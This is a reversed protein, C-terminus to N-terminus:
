DDSERRCSKLEDWESGGVFIIDNNKSRKSFENLAENETERQLVFVLVDSAGRLMELGVPTELYRFKKLQKIKRIAKPFNFLLVKEAESQDVKECSSIIELFMKYSVFSIM